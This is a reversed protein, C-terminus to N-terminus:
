RQRILGSAAYNILPPGGLTFGRKLSPRIGTIDDFDIGAKHGEAQLESPRVFRAADHTGKPALNLLYEAAYKALAVGALSRNITTIIAMSPQDDHGFSAMTTLFDERSSVHEIVESAIIVDFRAGSAALDEATRHHYTIDLGGREAHDRATAIAGPSADVGTVHAGLRALPEALLGGGCGIDLVTVGQLPAAIDRGLLRACHQRIYRVRSPTMAQLAAFPGNEDWWDESLAEFYGIEADDVSASATTNQDVSPSM